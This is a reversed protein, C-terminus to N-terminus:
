GPPSRCCCRRSAASGRGGAAHLHDRLRRRRRRRDALAGRCHRAQRVHQRGAQDLNGAVLNVADLLYTTLTGNEGTSTGVRGYVAARPTRALDRALSRVTDPAIGTRAQPPRRASRSPWGSWGSWGTPRGRSAPATPSAKASCCRCCRRAVPLRRRRARHRAVRVARRNRDQASRHRAGPRRAQRHRADPGQDAPRDARQRPLRGPQRRHRRSPRHAARRAGAAGAALRVAAPQRRVPQQRGALGRHVPADAPRCRPAHVDAAVPHPSYSFAGPNGFYWGIAGAGHRRHIEALRDAIDTM